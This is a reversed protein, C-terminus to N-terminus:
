DANDSQEASHSSAGRRAKKGYGEYWKEPVEIATFDSLAWGYREFWPTAEDHVLTSIEQLRRIAVTSLWRCREVDTGASFYEQWFSRGGLIGNAGHRLAMEVQRRYDPFDTGASLLVWPKRCANNLKELNRTLKAEVDFGLTGPFEAKYVDCYKSLARATRIVSTPKRKLYSESSSEEGQLPYSLTELLFLIDHKRCEREVKRVLARQLRVSEKHTPEFHVLLKVADAGMGKIKAVSWDDELLTIRGIGDDTTVTTRELCVLLGVGKPFRGTAVTHWAGYPADLLCASSHPALIRTLNGKAVVFEEYTPDRDESLQALASREMRVIAENQDLALMTFTGGTDAIRQLGLFKGPSLGATALDIYEV